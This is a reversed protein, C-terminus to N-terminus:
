KTNVDDLARGSRLTIAKCEARPNVQTDSPFTTPLTTALQKAIQGVQTELNRIAAEQNRFNARTEEMFNNTIQIFGNTTQVFSTTTLTLKELAAVFSTTPPKPQPPLLINQQQPFPPQQYQPRQQPLYPPRTQFNNNIPNQNGGWGFNPHNRWGPKYTNSNPDHFPQRQQNGM